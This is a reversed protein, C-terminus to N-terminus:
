FQLCTRRGHAFGDPLISQMARVPAAERVPRGLPQMIVLLRAANHGAISRRASPAPTLCATGRAVAFVKPSSVRRVDGVGVIKQFTPQSAAFAPEKALRAESICCMSAPLRGARAVSSDLIRAGFGLLSGFNGSSGPVSCSTAPWHFLAPQGVSFPTPRLAQSNCVSIAPRLKATM